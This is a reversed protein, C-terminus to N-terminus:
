LNNKQKWEDFGEAKLKWDLIVKMLFKIPDKSVEQPMEKIWKLSDEDIGIKFNRYITTSITFYDYEGKEIYKFFNKFAVLVERIKKFKIKRTKIMKLLFKPFFFGYQSPIHIIVFCCLFYRIEVTIGLRGDVVFDSLHSLMWDHFQFFFKKSNISPWHGAKLKDNIYKEISEYDDDIIKNLYEESLPEKEIVEEDKKIKASLDKEHQIENRKLYRNPSISHFERSKEIMEPYQDAKIDESM